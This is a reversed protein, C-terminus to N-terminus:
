HQAAVAVNGFLCFGMAQAPEAHHGPPRVACFANSAQGAMVSDVAACAAGAARLAAEGSDPSLTTDGDLFGVGDEPLAAFIREIYSEPHVRALQERSAQPAQ